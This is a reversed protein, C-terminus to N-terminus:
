VVEIQGYLIFARLNKKQVKAFAPILQM